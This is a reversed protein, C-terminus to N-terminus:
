LGVESARRLVELGLLPLRALELALHIPQAELQLLRALSHRLRHRTRRGSALDRDLHLVVVGELEADALDNGLQRVALLLDLPHRAPVLDEIGARRELQLQRRVRLRKRDRELPLVPVLMPEEVARGLDEREASHGGRDLEPLAPPEARAGAE